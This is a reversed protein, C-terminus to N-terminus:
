KPGISRLDDMREVQLLVAAKEGAAPMGAHHGTGGVQGDVNGRRGGAGGDGGGDRFNDLDCGVGCRGLWFVWSGDAGLCAKKEHVSFSQSTDWHKQPRDM